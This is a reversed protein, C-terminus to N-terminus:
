APPTTRLQQRLADVVAGLQSGRGVGFIFKDPRLVLVAGEGHGGQALAAYWAGSVDELEVLDAPWRAEIGGHPRAGWRYVVGFGMGMDACWQRTAAPLLTRPDVGAGLLTFRYGLPDDMRQLCGNAGRARPQVSLRGELGRRRRRPLGLYQGRELLPQPMYRGQRIQRGLWPATTLLKFLADRVRAKAPSSVSVFDKMRVAERIMATVHPRRETEYSDLLAPGSQGRLVAALKWGLNHADRVGANMGQGVFQPTMHAADGALLVRGQRWRDAVLANFTYVLQRLVDFDDVNVWRALYGRVTAPDEMQAKTQGPALMFEFRHHGQPQVCNVTPCDPDCVFSFYPLHRLGQLGAKAKIDVVLWPSPFATGQMGIGLQTRVVSRGGDAGVLYRARTREPPSAPADAGEPPTAAGAAGGWSGASAQHEVWVGEGDQAFRLVERGRRVQVSPYRSLGEALATELFPQYFFNSQSWGYPREPNLMTALVQRDARMVQIPVDEIMDALLRDAMGISQFIRMCEGDTFVARANGYFRPERELVLVSIGQMGLTHALVLGTPGLGAIIVDYDCHLDTM